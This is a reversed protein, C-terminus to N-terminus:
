YFTMNNNNNNNNNNYYYQFQEQYNSIYDFLNIFESVRMSMRVESPTSFEVNRAHLCVYTSTKRDLQLKFLGTTHLSGPRSDTQPASTGPNTTQAKDLAVFWLYLQTPWKVILGVIKWKDIMSWMEAPTQYDYCVISQEKEKTTIYMLFRLVGKESVFYM